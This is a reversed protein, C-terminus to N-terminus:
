AGGGVGFDPSSSDEGHLERRRAKAIEQANEAVYFLRYGHTRCDYRIGALSAPPAQELGANIATVTDIREAAIFAVQRKRTENIMGDPQVFRTALITVSIM